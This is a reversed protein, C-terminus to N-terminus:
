EFHVFIQGTLPSSRGKNVHQLYLHFLYVKNMIRLSVSPLMTINASGTILFQGNTRRNDVIKKMAPFLAPVKQVEDITLPIGQELFSEPDQEALLINTIDDFTLYMRREKLLDRVLTTKGTQRAGVVAVIPFKKLYNVLPKTQVQGVLSSM